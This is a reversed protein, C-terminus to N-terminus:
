AVAVWIQDFDLRSGSPSRLHASLDGNKSGKQTRKLAMKLSNKVMKFPWNKDM